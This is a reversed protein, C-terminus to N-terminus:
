TLFINGLIVSIICVIVFLSVVSIRALVDKM